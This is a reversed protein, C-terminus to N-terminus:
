EIQNRRINQLLHFGDDNAKIFVATKPIVIAQAFFMNFM